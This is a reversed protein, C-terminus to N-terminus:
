VVMPGTVPKKISVGLQLCLVGHGVASISARERERAQSLGECKWTIGHIIM